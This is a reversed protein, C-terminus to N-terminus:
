YNTNKKITFFPNKHQTEWNPKKNPNAPNGAGLLPPQARTEGTTDTIGLLSGLGLMEKQTGSGYALFGLLFKKREEKPLKRFSEPDTIPNIGTHEIYSQVWMNDPGMTLNKMMMEWKPSSTTVENVAKAIQPEQLRLKSASERLAIETFKRNELALKNREIEAQVDQGRTQVGTQMAAIDKANDRDKQNEQAQFGLKTGIEGMQQAMANQQNGIVQASGSSGTASGPAGSGYYEQATLGRQQAREWLTAETKMDKEYDVKAGYKANSKGSKKGMLGGLVQGGVGIAAATVIPM